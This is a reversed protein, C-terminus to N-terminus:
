LKTEMKDIRIYTIINKNIIVSGLNLFLINKDDIISTISDLEHSDIITKVFPKRQKKIYIEINYTM